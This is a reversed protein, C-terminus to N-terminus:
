KWLREKEAKREAKIARVIFVIAPVYVSLTLLGWSIVEEM